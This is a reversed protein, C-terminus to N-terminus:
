VVTTPGVSFLYGGKEVDVYGKFEANFVRENDLQFAFNMAGPCAAKHVVFDHEGNTNKPRLRLVQASDLLNINVGTPVDVRASTAVVGGTADVKTIGASSGTFAGNFEPGTFQATVTVVALANVASYAIEADRFAAAINAATAAPSAGIVIDYVNATAAVVFNFTKGAFILTQAATPQTTVTLTGSSKIGNTTLVSGPMVLTMNEMTTEVMPVTVAVTRGTILEAIPTSGYQDVTVEHSASAVTVEVGGKTLGLSVGGYFVDCVGLKVNKSSSAM